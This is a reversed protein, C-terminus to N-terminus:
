GPPSDALSSPLQREAKAAGSPAGGPAHLAGSEGAPAPSPHSRSKRRGAEDWTRPDGSSRPTRGLDLGPQDLTNSPSIAEWCRGSTRTGRQKEGHVRLSGAAAGELSPELSRPGAVLRETRMVEPEGRQRELGSSPLSKTDMPHCLTLCSKYYKYCLM